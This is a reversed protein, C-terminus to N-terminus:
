GVQHVALIRYIGPECGEFRNADIAAKAAELTDFLCHTNAPLESAMHNCSLPSCEPADGWTVVDYGLLRSTPPPEVRPPFDGALRLPVWRDDDWESEYAEYFFLRADAVDIGHEAVLDRIVAPSDFLWFDNHRWYLTYDAFDQSICRSTSCIEKVQPADLWDPRAAVHKLM